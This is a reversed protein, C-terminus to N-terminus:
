PQHDYAGVGMHSWVDGIGGVGAATARADERVAQSAVWGNLYAIGDRVDLTVYSLKPRARVREHLASTLQADRDRLATSACGALLVSAVLVGRQWGWSRGAMTSTM